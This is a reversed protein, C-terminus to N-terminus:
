LPVPAATSRAATRYLMWINKLPLLADVNVIM